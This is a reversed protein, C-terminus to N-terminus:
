QLLGQVVPLPVELRVKLSQLCPPHHCLLPLADQQQHMSQMLM